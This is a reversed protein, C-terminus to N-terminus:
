ALARVFHAAPAIIATLTAAVARRRATPRLESLYWAMSALVGSAVAVWVAASAALLGMALAAVAGMAAVTALAWAIAAAVEQNRQRPDKAVAPSAQPRRQPRDHRAM